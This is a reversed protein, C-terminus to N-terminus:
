CALACKNKFHAKGSQFGPECGQACGKLEAGWCAFGGEPVEAPRDVLPPAVPQVFPAAEAPMCVPQPMPAQSIQMHHPQVVISDAGVSGNLPESMVRISAPMSNPVPQLAGTTHLDAADVSMEGMDVDQSGGLLKQVSDASQGDALLGDILENFIEHETSTALAM